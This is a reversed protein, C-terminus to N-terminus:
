WFLVFLSSLFASISMEAGDIRRSTSATWPSIQLIMFSLLFTGHNIYNKIDTASGNWYFNNLLQNPLLEGNSYFVNNYYRPLLYNGMRNYVRNCTKLKTSLYNIIEETTRIARSDEYSDPINNFLSDENDQFMSVCTVTNYFDSDDNPNKEYNYIKDFVHQAENNSVATIRGFLIDSTYDFTDSLCVYPFDTSVSESYM